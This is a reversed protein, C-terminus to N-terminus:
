IPYDGSEPIALLQKFIVFVLEIMDNHKKQKQEVKLCDALHVMLTSIVKPELFAEKFKILHAYIELKVIEECSSSPLETLQVLLM